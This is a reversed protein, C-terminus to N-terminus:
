TKQKEVEVIVPAAHDCNLDVAVHDFAANQAAMSAAGKVNLAQRVAGTETNRTKLPVLM